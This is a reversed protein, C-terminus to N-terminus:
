PCFIVSFEEDDPCSFTKNDDAPFLYADPCGDAQCILTHCRFGNLNENKTPMIMM